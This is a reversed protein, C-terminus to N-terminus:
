AAVTVSAKGSVGFLTATIDSNGAKVGSVVGSESVTANEPTGSTWAAQATVDATRGDIMTAVASAQVTQNVKAAPVTVAISAIISPNFGIVGDGVVPVSLAASVTGPVEPTAPNTYLATATVTISTNPEDLGVVLVGTPSIYTYDSKPKVTDGIAYEVADSRFTATSDNTITTDATIQVASGRSVNTPTTTGGGYMALKLQFTPTKAQTGTPPVTKTSSGAGTWFMVAPAFGSVSIIHQVHLYHNVSNINVPNIQQTMENIVPIDILLKDTTLIAQVGNMGFRDQPIVIIRDTTPEADTRQFVTALGQVDLASKVEPSCFLVLEDPRAFTPMHRANYRTSVFKLTDAWARIQRLMDRADTETSGMDNLDKGMHVRWYGGLKAYEVFQHCMAEFLDVEAANYCSTLIQSTLSALGGESTFARQLTKDETTAPYWHTFDLRHYLSDVDIKWKRFNDAGLYEANPDYVQALPM